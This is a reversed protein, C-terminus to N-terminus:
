EIGWVEKFTEVDLDGQQLRTVQNILALIDVAHDPNFAGSLDRVLQITAKAHDASEIDNLYQTLVDKLTM